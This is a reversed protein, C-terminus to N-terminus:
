LQGEDDHVVIQSVNLIHSSRYRNAEVVLCVFGQSGEFRSAQALRFGDSGRQEGLDAVPTPALFEGGFGRSEFGVFGVSLFHEDNSLEHFGETSRPSM